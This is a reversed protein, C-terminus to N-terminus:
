SLPKESLPLAFWFTSGAGPQSNVGIKGSHAVIIRQCYHLGLGIGTLHQKDIGRIYLHFLRDCQEQTMGNGDDSISCYLCPTPCNPAVGSVVGSVVDPNTMVQAAITITRNPPNHKTANSLFHELVQQLQLPDAHIAPLNAPLHNVVVAENKSLQPELNALANELVGSLYVSERNLALHTQTCSHNEMLSNLLSLQRDSSQIMCNLMSRPISVTETGKDSLSQLVMLMGHLPTRLDHTVAHLLVDKVQNLSQLEQMRQRLELTREEVQCELSAALTQLQHYLQGQQLAIEVQTGLKKLLDVEFPQWERCGSCQNVALVGFMEGNLWIPVGMGAKVQCRDYYDKLFPTQEIQSTDAIVRVTDQKFLQRIEEAVNPTLVIGLTSTLNPAVSEAVSWCSNDSELHTIFVRDVQLFQRVEAVTTNLIEQLDLSGRIRLAIESLLREQDAALRLRAEAAKRETIDYATALAAPQGDLSASGGTVDVWKEVGSKTLIKFEYRRPVMEGRQRALGRDRILDQFEPHALEWFDMSVLEEESYGTIQEAAPNVYRLRNGQYVLFACSATEAVVRFRAESQQLAAEAQKRETMDEFIIGVCQNPLPIAKTAFVGAPIPRDGYRVEGLDRAKGSRIVDQYIRPFATNELDPLVDAMSKGELLALPESFQLIQQAAANCELLRFSHVDELDQLQWVLLGFPMRKVIDGYFQVHNQAQKLQNIDEQSQAQKMLPALIPAAVSGVILSGVLPVGWFSQWTAQNYILAASEVPLEVKLLVRIAIEALVVAAGGSLAIAGVALWYRLTVQNLSQNFGMTRKGVVCAAM